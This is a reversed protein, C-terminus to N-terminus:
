ERGRYPLSIADDAGYLIAIDGSDSMRGSPQNSLASRRVEVHLTDDGGCALKTAMELDVAPGSRRSRFSM